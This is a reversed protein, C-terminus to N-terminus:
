DVIDAAVAALDVVVVVVAVVVAVVARWDIVLEAIEGVEVGVVVVVVVAAAAVLDITKLAPCGSGIPTTM